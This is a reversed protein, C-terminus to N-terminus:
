RSWWNTGVTVPRVLYHWERSSSTLSPLALPLATALAQIGPEGPENRGPQLEELRPRGNTIAGAFAKLGNNGIHNLSIRRKLALPARPSPTPSSYQVTPPM